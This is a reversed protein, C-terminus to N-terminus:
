AEGPSKTSSANESKASQPTSPTTSSSASSGSSSSTSPSTTPGSSPSTSPGTSPSTSPNTSPNTSPGTSPGNSSSSPKSGAAAGTDRSGQPASPAHRHGDTHAQPAAGQGLSRRANPQGRSGTTASRGYPAGQAGAPRSSKLFRGGLLGLIMAGGLFLAPDRRAFQETDSVLEAFSRDRIYGSVSDVKQAAQDLYPTFANNDEARLQEGTKRLANAVSGLGDAARTVGATFQSTAADRTQAVVDHAVGKASEAVGQAGDVVSQKLALAAQEVQPKAAGAAGAAGPPTTSSASTTESSTTDKNQNQNMAMGITQLSGRKASLVHRPPHALATVELTCHTAATLASGVFGTVSGGMIGAGSAHGLRDRGSPPCANEGVEWPRTRTPPACPAMPLRVTFTAGRGLGESEGSMRRRSRVEDLRAGDGRFAAALERRVRAIRDLSSSNGIAERIEHEFFAFRVRSPSLARGAFGRALIM